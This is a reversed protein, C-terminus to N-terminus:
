LYLGDATNATPGTETKEEGVEAKDIDGGEKDIDGDGSGSSGKWEVQMELVDQPVDADIGAKRLRRVLEAAMERRKVIIEENEHMAIIFDRDGPHEKLAERLEDNSRALARISTCIEGLKADLLLASLDGAGAAAGTAARSREEQTAM